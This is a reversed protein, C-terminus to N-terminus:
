AHSWPHDIMYCCCAWCCRSGCGVFPPRWSDNGDASGLCPVIRACHLKASSLSLSLWDSLSCHLLQMFRLLYFLFIKCIVKMPMLVYNVAIVALYELKHIPHTSGLWAVDVNVNSPAELKVTEICCHLCHHQQVALLVLPYASIAIVATTGWVCFGGISQCIHLCAHTIM